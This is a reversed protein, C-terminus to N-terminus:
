GASEGGGGLADDIQEAWSRGGGRLSTIGSAVAFVRSDRIGRLIAELEAVRNQLVMIRGEADELRTQTRM